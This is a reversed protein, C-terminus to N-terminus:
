KKKILALPDSAFGVQLIDVVQEPETFLQLAMHCFLLEFVKDEQNSGEDRKKGQFFFFCFVFVYSLKATSKNRWKLLFVNVKVWNTASPFNHILLPSKMSILVKKQIKEIVKVASRFAKETQLTLVHSFRYNKGRQSDFARM